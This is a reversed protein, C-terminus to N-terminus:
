VKIADLMSSWKLEYDDDNPASCLDLQLSTSKGREDEAEDHGRDNENGTVPNVFLIGM